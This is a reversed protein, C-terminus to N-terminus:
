GEDVGKAQRRLAREGTVLVATLATTVWLAIVLPHGPIILNKHDTAMAIVLQRLVLGGLGLLGVALPLKKPNLIKKM